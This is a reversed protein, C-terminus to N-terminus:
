RPISSMEAAAILTHKLLFRWSFMLFIEQEQMIHGPEGPLGSSVPSGPRGIDQDGV